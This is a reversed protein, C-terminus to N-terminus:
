TEIIGAGVASPSKLSDTTKFKPLMLSSHYAGSGPLLAHLGADVFPSECTPRGIKFVFCVFTPERVHISVGDIDVVFNAGFLVTGGRAADVIEFVVADM